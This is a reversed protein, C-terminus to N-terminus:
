LHYGSWVKYVHACQYSRKFLTQKTVKIRAAQSVIAKRYDPEDKITEQKWILHVHNAKLVLRYRYQPLFSGENLIDYYKHVIVVLCTTGWVTHQTKNKVYCNYWHTWVTFEKKGVSLLVKTPYLICIDAFAINNWYSHLKSYLM